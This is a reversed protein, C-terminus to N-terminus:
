YCVKKTGGIVQINDKNKFQKKGSVPSDALTFDGNKEYLVVTHSLPAHGGYGLIGNVIRLNEAKINNSNNTDKKILASAALVAYDECDGKKSSLLENASQWVDRGGGEHVYSFATNKYPSYQYVTNLDKATAESSDVWKDGNELVVPSKYSSLHRFDKRATEKKDDDSMSSSLEKAFLDATMMQPIGYEHALAIARQTVTAAGAVIMIGASIKETFEAVGQLAVAFPGGAASAARIGQAVM